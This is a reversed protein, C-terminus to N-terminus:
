VAAALWAVDRDDGASGPAGWQQRGVTDSQRERRARELHQQRLGRGACERGHDAREVALEAELLEGAAGVEDAAAPGRVNRGFCGVAPLDGVVAHLAAERDRAL